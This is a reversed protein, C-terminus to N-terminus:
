VLPLENVVGVGAPDALASLRGHGPGLVEHPHRLAVPAIVAVYQLRVDAAEEGADPMVHQEGLDLACEGIRIREPQPPLDNGAVPVLGTDAQGDARQGALEASVDHEVPKIM